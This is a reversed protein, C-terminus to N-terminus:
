TFSKKFKVTLSNSICTQKLNNCNCNFDNMTKSKSFKYEKQREASM